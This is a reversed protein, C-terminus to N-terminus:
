PITTTSTSPAGSTTTSGKKTTTAGKPRAGVLIVDPLMDYHWSIRERIERHGPRDIVRFLQVDYGTHGEDLDFVEDPKLHACDKNPDVKPDKPPCRVVSTTFPTTKTIDVCRRTSSTTSCNTSEEKVVKGERDGYLSITIADSSYTARVLVGHKSNNKWKLDLVPYNVTAERGLPYRSYYITHPQHFVIDFGGWFAANYTTTAIQSVGGGYDETFEGYFVPAKVFGREATRAGVTDNLSFVHGPEVITNNMIDAARHINTVRAQGPVYNTTFASVQETIGLGEAWATDHIPHRRALAVTVTSRNALIARAVAALDPAQGDQSPVVVVRNDSTVAFRAEVAAAGIPALQPRLALELRPEDIALAIRAGDVRTKMASAIQAPTAVFTHGSSTIRLDHGLIARAEHALAHVQAKTTRPSIPGFSLQVTSRDGDRLESIIKTRAEDRDIGMGGSPAIEVVKTGTFRLGGEHVGRDVQASWQDLITDIDGQDFTIVPDIRDPRVRRLVTGLVQDIPNGSRGAERARRLTARTDVRLHVVAPDARLAHGSTTGRLPETELKRALEKISEYATLERQGSADLSGIAIGAMVRGRYAIREAVGLYLLLVVAAGAILAADRLSRAPRPPDITASMPRTLTALRHLLPSTGLALHAGRCLPM